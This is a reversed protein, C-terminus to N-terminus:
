MRRQAGKSGRKQLEEKQKTRSQLRELIKRREEYLNALYSQKDKNKLDEIRKKELEQAKKRQERMSQATKHM